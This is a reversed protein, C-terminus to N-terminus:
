INVIPATTGMCPYKPSGWHIPMWCFLV